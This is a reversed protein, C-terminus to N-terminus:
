RNVFYEKDEFIEKLVRLLIKEDMGKLLYANAGAKKLENVYNTQFTFSIGIAKVLPHIAKIKRIVDAGSTEPLHVNTIVIDFKETQCINDIDAGTGDQIIEYGHLALFYAYAERLQTYPEILLITKGQLM